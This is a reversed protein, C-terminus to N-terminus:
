RFDFFQEPLKATKHHDTSRIDDVQAAHLSHKWGHQYHRASLRDGDRPPQAAFNPPLIKIEICLLCGPLSLCRSSVNPRQFPSGQGSAYRKGQLWSQTSTSRRSFQASKHPKRRKKILRVSDTKASNPLPEAFVANMLKVPVIKIANKMNMSVESSAKQLFSNKNILWELRNQINKQMAMRTHLASNGSSDSIPIIYTLFRTLVSSCRTATNPYPFNRRGYTRMTGPVFFFVQYEMEKTDASNKATKADNTM